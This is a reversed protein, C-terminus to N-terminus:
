KLKVKNFPAPLNPKYHHFMVQFYFDADRLMYIDVHKRRKDYVCDSGEQICFYVHLDSEGLIDIVKEIEEVTLEPVKQSIVKAIEHTFPM